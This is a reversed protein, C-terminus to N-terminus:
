QLEKYFCEIEWFNTYLLAVRVIYQVLRTAKINPTSARSDVIMHSAFRMGAYVGLPSCFLIMM